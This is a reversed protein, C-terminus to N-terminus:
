GLQPTIQTQQRVSRRARLPRPSPPGLKNPSPPPHQRALPTPPQRLCALLCALTLPPQHTLPILYVALCPRDRPGQAPRGGPTTLAFLLPIDTVPPSHQPPPAAAARRAGYRSWGPWPLLVRRGEGGAGEEEEEGREAGKPGKGRGRRGGKGRGKRREGVGKDRGRKDM